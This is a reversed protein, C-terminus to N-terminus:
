GPPAGRPLRVVEEVRGCGPDPPPECPDPHLHPLDLEVTARSAAPELSAARASCAALLLPLPTARNPAAAARIPVHLGPHRRNPEARPRHAVRPHGPAVLSALRKLARAHPWARSTRAPPVPGLGVHCYRNRVARSWSRCPLLPQVRHPQLHGPHTASAPPWSCATLNGDEVKRERTGPTKPRLHCPRRRRASCPRCSGWSRRPELPQCPAPVGPWSRPSRGYRRGGNLWSCHAAGYPSPWPPPAAHPPAACQPRSPPWLLAASPGAHPQPTRPPLPAGTMPWSALPRLPSLM